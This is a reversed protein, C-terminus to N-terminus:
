KTDRQMAINAGDACIKQSNNRVSAACMVFYIRVVFIVFSVFAESIESEFSKAGKTTLKREEHVEHGEHHTKKERKVSNQNRSPRGLNKATL